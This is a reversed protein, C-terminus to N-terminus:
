LLNPLVDICLHVNDLLVWHGQSAGTLITRAMKSLNGSGCPVYMIDHKDGTYIPANNSKIRNMEERCDM